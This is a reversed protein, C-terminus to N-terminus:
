KVWFMCFERKISTLPCYLIDILNLLTLSAVTDSSEGRPLPPGGKLLLACTIIWIQALNADPSSFFIVFRNKLEYILPDTDFLHENPPQWHLVTEIGPSQKIVGWDFM